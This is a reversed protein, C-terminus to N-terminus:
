RQVLARHVLDRNTKNKMSKFYEKLDITGDGDRDLEKLVRNIDGETAKLKGKMSRLINGFEETTVNGDGDADLELFEQKTNKIQEATLPKAYPM